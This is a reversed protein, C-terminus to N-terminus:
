PAQRENGRSAVLHLTEPAIDGGNPWVVTWSDLAFNQFYEKDELPEFFPYKAIWPSFDIDAILGDSFTLKLVHDGVYEAGTVTILDNM